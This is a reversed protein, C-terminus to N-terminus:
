VRCPAAAHAHPYDRVEQVMCGLSTFGSVRFGLGRVLFKCGRCGSVQVRRVGLGSGQVQLGLGWGEVGFGSGSARLGWGGVRFGSGQVGLGSGQVRLGLGEIM